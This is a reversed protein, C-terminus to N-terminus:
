LRIRELEDRTLREVRRGYLQTTRRGVHAAMAKAHELTGCNSLNAASPLPLQRWSSATRSRVAMVAPWIM